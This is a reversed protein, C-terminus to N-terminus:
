NQTTVAHDYQIKIIDSYLDTMLDAQDAYNCPDTTIILQIGDTAGTGQVDPHRSPPPNNNSLGSHLNSPARSGPDRPPVLTWCHERSKGWYSGPLRLGQIM